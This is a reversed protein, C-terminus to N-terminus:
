TIIIGSGQAEVRGFAVSVDDTAIAVEGAVHGYFGAAAYRLAPCKTSRVIGFAAEAEPLPIHGAEWDQETVEFCSGPSQPNDDLYGGHGGEEERCQQYNSSLFMTEAVVPSFWGVLRGGCRASMVVGPSGGGNRFAHTMTSNVSWAKSPQQQWAIPKQSPAPSGFSIGYGSGAYLEGDEAGMLQVVPLDLVTFRALEQPSDSTEMLPLALISLPGMVGLLNKPTQEASYVKQRGGYMTALMYTVHTRGVKHYERLEKGFQTCMALFTTSKHGWLGRFYTDEKKQSLFKLEVLPELLKYYFGFVLAQYALWLEMDAKTGDPAISQSQLLYELGSHQGLWVQSEQPVGTLLEEVASLIQESAIPFSKAVLMGVHTKFLSIAKDEGQLEYYFENQYAFPLDAKAQLHFFTGAQKGLEWMCLMRNTTGREAETAHIMSQPRGAPYSVMIARWMPANPVSARRGAQGGIMSPGKLANFDSTYTIHLQEDYAVRDDTTISVGAKHIARAFSFTAASVCSFSNTENKFLVVLLRTLEEAEARNLQPIAQGGVKEEWTQRFATQVRHALSRVTGVQRWSEMNKDLNVRLPSTAEPNGLVEVFADIILDKGDQPPMCIDLASVIVAMLWGFDDLDGQKQANVHQDASNVRQGNSIFQEHRYMSEMKARDVIGKRQLLAEKDEMLYEFLDKDHRPAFLWNGLKSGASYVLAVDSLGLGLQILSKPGTSVAVSM